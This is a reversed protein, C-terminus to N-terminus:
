AKQLHISRHLKYLTATRNHHSTHKCDCSTILFAIPYKGIFKILTKQMTGYYIIICIENLQNRRNNLIDLLIDSM